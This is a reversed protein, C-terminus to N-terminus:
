DNSEGQSPQASMTSKISFITIVLLFVWYGAGLYGGKMFNLLVFLLLFYASHVYIKLNYYLFLLLGLLGLDTIVYAFNNFLLPSNSIGNGLILNSSNIHSWSGLLRVSASTDAGSFIRSVRSVIAINFTPNALLFIFLVMLSAMFLYKGRDLYTISRSKVLDLTKIIGLIAITSFSFSLLLSIIIFGESLKSLRFNFNNFYSVGLVLLLYFGMHAPEGFISRMRIVSTFAGLTYSNLDNRTFTWLFRYPLSHNLMISIYIYLGIICVFIAGVGLYSIFKKQLQNNTIYNYSFLITSFYLVVKLTGIVGSIYDFDQNFIFQFFFNFMLYALVVYFGIFQKREFGVYGRIFLSFLVLILFADSFTLYSVLRWDVLILTLSLLILIINISSVQNRM